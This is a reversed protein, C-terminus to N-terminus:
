PRSARNGASEWTVGACGFGTEVVGSVDGASDRDLVTYGPRIPPFCTAGRLEQVVSRRGKPGGTKTHAGGAVGSKGPSCHGETSLSPNLNTSRFSLIQAHLPLRPSRRYEIVM